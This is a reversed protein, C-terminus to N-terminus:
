EVEDDTFASPHHETWWSLERVWGAVLLLGALLHAQSYYAPDGHITGHRNFGEPNADTDILSNATALELHVVRLARLITEEPKRRSLTKYARGLLEYGLVGHIVRGLAAATLAQCAADHGDQAAALAQQALAHVEGQETVASVGAEHLVESVDELVEVRAAVLVAGRSAFDDLELVERVVEARPAWFLSPGTSAAIDLVRDVEARELERLNPPIASRWLDRMAEAARLAPEIAARRYARAAELSPEISLRPHATAAKLVDNLGASRSVDLQKAAQEIQTRPVSLARLWPARMARVVERMQQRLPEYPDIPNSM